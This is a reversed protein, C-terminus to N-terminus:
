IRVKRKGRWDHLDTRLFRTSSSLHTEGALGQVVTTAPCENMVKARQRGGGHTLDRSEVEEAKSTVMATVFLGAGQQARRPFPAM